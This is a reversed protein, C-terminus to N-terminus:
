ATLTKLRFGGHHEYSATVVALADRQGQDGLGAAAADAIPTRLLTLIGTLGEPTLPIGAPDCAACVAGGAAPLFAVLGDNRGCEVCSELHPM